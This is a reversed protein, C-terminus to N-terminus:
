KAIRGAHMVKAHDAIALARMLSTKIGPRTRVILTANCLTCTASKAYTKM